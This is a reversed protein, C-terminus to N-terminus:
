SPSSNVNSENILLYTSIQSYRIHTLIYSSQRRSKRNKSSKSVNRIDESHFMLYVIPRPRQFTRPDRVSDQFKMFKLVKTWVRSLIPGSNKGYVRLIRNWRLDM